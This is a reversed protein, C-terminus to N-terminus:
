TWVRGVADYTVTTANRGDVPEASVTETGLFQSVGVRLAAYRLNIM